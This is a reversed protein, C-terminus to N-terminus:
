NGGFSGYTNKSIGGKSDLRPLASPQNGIGSGGPGANKNFYSSPGRNGSGIPNMGGIGQGSGYLKNPITDKSKQKYFSNKNVSSKRSLIGKRSEIRIARSAPLKVGGGGSGLVNSSSQKDWLNKNSDSGRLNM